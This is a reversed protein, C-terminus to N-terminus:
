VWAVPLSLLEKSSLQTNGTVSKIYEVLEDDKVNLLINYLTHIKSKDTHTVVNVHNEVFWKGDDVLAFKLVPNKLSGVVRNFVIFPATVYKGSQEPLFRRSSPIVDSLVIKKDLSIDRSYILTLGDDTFDKKFNNWIINGTRVSFGLESLTSKGKKYSTITKVNDTFIFSSSNGYVYNSSKEFNKDFGNSTKRITLIQVSTLADDFHDNNRIITLDEIVGESLILKRLSKFYSGNNMSPPILCVFVGDNKLLKLSYEIFLSFINIRGNNNKTKFDSLYSLRTDNKSIEFYPPNAIIYDITNKFNKWKESFLSLEKLSAEPINQAATKLMGTDTDFGSLSVNNYTRRTALLLEGTGVAPDLVVTDPVDSKICLKKAMEDAIAPPTM